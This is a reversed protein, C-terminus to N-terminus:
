GLIRDLFANGFKRQPDLEDRLSRFAEWMPYRAALERAEAAFLKGWHPRPEFPALVVELRPLLAAVASSEARWTFHLGVTPREFAGSLWLRDAAMSRVETVQLLPFIEEKMAAIATLASPAHARAILYESQLEEGASPTFEMRFHPLREHWPGVNGLQATCNEAPMGRLPHRPAKAPKAGFLEKRDPADDPVRSKVWVQDFAETQWTTFLSVSYGSAMVEEFNEIAADLSLGEFVRQSVAFTPQTRLELRVVVGLAGLHVVMGHFQDGHSRPNVHMLRGDALVLDFATISTALNGLTDGSGHTGTGVAGAVSIHPLSALNPLAMGHQELVRALEGYRIGGEVIVKDPTFSLVRNLRGLSLHLGETDALHNFSHRSGLAKVHSAGTVMAQVEEVSSPM